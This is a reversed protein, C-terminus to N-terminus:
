SVKRCKLEEELRKIREKLLTIQRIAITIQNHQDEMVLQLTEPYRNDDKAFGEKHHVIEWPLLCRNLAKAVVLRHELVYGLCNAMLYFFDNPQLKIIIYGRNTSKGGKWMPNKDWPKYAIPSLKNACTKCRIHKWKERELRIWREKGCDPCAEWVFKATPQKGIEKGQKIENLQPM